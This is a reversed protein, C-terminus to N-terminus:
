LTSSAAQKSLHDMRNRDAGRAGHVMIELVEAVSSCISLAAQKEEEELPQEGPSWAGSARLLQQVIAQFDALTLVEASESASPEQM